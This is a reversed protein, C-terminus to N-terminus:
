TLDPPPLSASWPYTFNLAYIMAADLLDCGYFTNIEDRLSKNLLAPPVGPFRNVAATSTAKAILKSTETTSNV